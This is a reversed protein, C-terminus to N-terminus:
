RAAVSEMMTDVRVTYQVACTRSRVCFLVCLVLVHVVIYFWLCVHCVYVIVCRRVCHVCECSRLVHSFMLHTCVCGLCAYMRSWVDNLCVCACASIHVCVQVCARGCVRRNCVCACVCLVFM